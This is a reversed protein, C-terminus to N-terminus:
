VKQKAFDGFEEVVQEYVDRKFPVVLAVLQNMPVWQWADFEPQHGDPSINFESDEGLFRMAFWKQQQGRYKGKLAIGIAEDPLDYKLWDKTKGIVEANATGVEEELERLAAFKPKEGNDIGGQPMQWLAASGDGHWKSVRRGVWVKGERNLLMIGVCRRYPMNKKRSTKM